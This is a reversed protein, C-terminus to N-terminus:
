EGVDRGVPAEAVTFALGVPTEVAGAHTRGVTLKNDREIKVGLARAEEALEGAVVDALRQRDNEVVLEDAGRSNVGGDEATALDRTATASEALRLCRVQGVGEVGTRKGGLEIVLGDALLLDSRLQTFVVEAGAQPRRDEAKDDDGDEHDDV